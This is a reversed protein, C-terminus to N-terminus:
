LITLENLNPAKCGTAALQKALAIYHPSFYLLVECHLGQTACYKVYLPADAVALQKINALEADALMADGLNKYHWM